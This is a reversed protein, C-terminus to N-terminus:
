NDVLILDFGASVNANKGVPTADIYLDTKQTFKYYPYYPVRINGLVLGQVDKLQREYGNDNDRAWLRIPMSTPDLNTAPNVTAKWQTVYATKGNPVTYIAMLTQNNGTSIIAYDQTEGANHVRIPSTSVVNELVKMRFVRILPTDLTVVTTTNAADLDKTQVVLDWNADLGQIEITGGRLTIQDATQSMSTILATAPFSYLASGDWIDETTGSAIVSNRGFKNVHSIRSLAVQEGASMTLYPDASYAVNDSNVLKVTQSGDTQQGAVKGLNGSGSSSGGAVYPKGAEDHLVVPLAKEAKVSMEEPMELPPIVPTDPKAVNVTVEPKPVVIKPIKIEPVIVDPVNVTVKAEPVNIPPVKVEPVNIQPIKIEPVTVDVKPPQVTVTPTPLKLAGLAKTFGDSIKEVAEDLMFSFMGLKIEEKEDQKKNRVKEKLQESVKKLFEDAM